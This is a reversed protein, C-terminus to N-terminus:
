RVFSKPRPKGSLNTALRPLSRRDRTSSSNLHTAEVRMGALETLYIPRPHFRLEFYSPRKSTQGGLAWPQPPQIQRGQAQSPFWRDRTAPNHARSRRISKSDVVTSGRIVFSDM